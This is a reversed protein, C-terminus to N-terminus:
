GIGVKFKEIIKAKDVKKNLTIVQKRSVCANGRVKDLKILSFKQPQNM